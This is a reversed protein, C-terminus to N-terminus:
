GSSRSAYGAVSKRCGVIGLAQTTGRLAIRTRRHLDAPRQRTRRHDRTGRIRPGTRRRGSPPVAQHRCRPDSRQASGVAHPVDRQATSLEGVLDQLGKDHPDRGAEARMLRRVNRRVPGLRPLLRPLCPGPVPVPRPQAHSWRRRHGPLLVRPGPRQHRSPGPTPRPRVRRRRHDVSLAWQLSPRSAAAQEARRRSPGVPPSATPPAHWTSFTPANPTMSSCPPPSRTWSARRVRRRDPRARAERLVGCQSRRAGRGRQAAPGAVRRNSGSTLGAADPTLRARRTM